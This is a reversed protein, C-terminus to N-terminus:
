RANLRRPDNSRDLAARDWGGLEAAAEYASQLFELLTHDPNAARRVVDYPLVFERLDESYFVGAPRLRAQAFRAPEPYAYAYFAPYSIPGAGAWFGVSMVEHSYAERAIRDPLNPVGGPHPPATRGSFRTVALDPAGWFYHVPSSKGIFRARFQAFVRDAQVLVRWHRNVADADYSNHVEDEDFRIPEAVENPKMHITVPLHLRKLEAMLAHYFAAVSHPRLDFGGIDGDSTRIVLRHAVFDFDIEFTRAGHPVPMTTLGRATVYLTATWSHNIWPSLTLRIKGVIQMWMHLTAHTDSWTELPLDPWLQEEAIEHMAHSRLVALEIACWRGPEDFGTVPPFFARWSGGRKM